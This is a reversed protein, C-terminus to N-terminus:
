TEADLRTVTVSVELTHSEGGHIVGKLPTVDGYDRGWALTLHGAGAAVGNTPDFDFWGLGPM